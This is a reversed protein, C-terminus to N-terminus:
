LITSRLSFEQLVSPLGYLNFWIKLYNLTFEDHSDIKLDRGNGEYYTMLHEKMTNSTECPHIQFWPNQLIHHDTLLIDVDEELCIYKKLDELDFILKTNIYIRFNFIPVIYFRDFSVTFEIGVSNGNKITTLYVFVVLQNCVEKIRLNSIKFDLSRDKCHLDQTITEKLKGICRDFEEITILFDENNTM